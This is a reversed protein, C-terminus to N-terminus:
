AGLEKLTQELMMLEDPKPPPPTMGFLPYFWEANDEEIAVDFPTQGDSNVMNEQVRAEKLINFVQQRVDETLDGGNNAFHHWVSDNDTDKINPDGGNSLIWILVDIRGWSAAASLCTYGNEDTSNVNLTGNSNAILTQVLNLDGDSAAEWLTTEEMAVM